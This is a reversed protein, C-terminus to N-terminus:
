FKVVTMAVNLELSLKDALKQAEKITPFNKADAADETWVDVGRYFTAGSAEERVKYGNGM